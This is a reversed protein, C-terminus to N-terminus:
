RRATPSKRSRPPVPLSCWSRRLRCEARMIPAYLRALPVCLACFEPMCSATCAPRVEVLSSEHVPEFSCRQQKAQESNRARCVRLEPGRDGCGAVVIEAAHRQTGLIRRQLRAEVVGKALRTEVDTGPSAVDVVTVVDVPVDFDVQVGTVVARDVVIRAPGDAEGPVGIRPGAIRRRSRLDLRIRFGPEADVVL